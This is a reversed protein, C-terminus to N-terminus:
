LSVKRPAASLTSQVTGFAGTPEMEICFGRAESHCSSPGLFLIFNLFFYDQCIFKARNQWFYFFPFAVLCKVHSFQTSFAKSSSVKVTLNSLPHCFPASKLLKWSCAEHSRQGPFRSVDLSSPFNSLRSLKQPPLSCAPKREMKGGSNFTRRSLRPNLHM